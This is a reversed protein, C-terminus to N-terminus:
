RPPRARAPPASSSRGGRRSRRRCRGRRRPGRLSRRRRPRPPASRRGRRTRRGARPRRRRPGAPSGRARRGSARRTSSRACPRARSPSRAPRGALGVLADLRDLGGDVGVLLLADREGGRGPRAPSSRPSWRRRRGGPSRRRRRRGASRAEAEAHAARGLREVGLLDAALRGLARDRQEARGLGGRAGARDDEVRDHGRAEDAEDAARQAGVGDLAAARREGPRRPSSTAEAASVRVSSAMSGAPRLEDGNSASPAGQPRVGSISAPM